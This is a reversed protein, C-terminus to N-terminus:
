MVVVEIVDSTGGRVYLTRSAGSGINFWTYGGSDVPVGLALAGATATGTAAGDLAPAELGVRMTTAAPKVGVITATDPIPVSGVGAGMTLSLSKAGTKLDTPLSVSGSVTLAGQDSAVTVPLSAAKVGQGFALDTASGDAGISLKVRQHLVGGVDDAAVTAGTGPTTGINDAM